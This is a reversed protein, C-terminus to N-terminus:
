ESIPIYLLVQKNLAKVKNNVIITRDLQIEFGKVKEQGSYTLKKSRNQFHRPPALANIWFLSGLNRNYNRFYTQIFIVYTVNSEGDFKLKGREKELQIFDEQTEVKEGELLLTYDTVYGHASVEISHFPNFHAIRDVQFHKDYPAMFNRDLTYRKGSEGIVEYSYVYNTKAGFWALQHPKFYFGSFLMIVMSGYFTTKTFLREELAVPMKWFLLLVVIEFLMWKWFFVGTLAFISIHIGFFGMIIFRSWKAKFLFLIAVLELCFTVISLLTGYQEAFNIVGQSLNWGRYNALALSYHLNGNTFWEYGHPAVFIKSIAPIVYSAGLLCVMLFVYLHAPWKRYLRVVIFVYFLMLQDILMKKDVNTIDSIPVYFQARVLLTIALYPAIFAPHKWILVTLAILLVRDFYHAQDFYYNYNYTSHDWTLVAAIVVVIWRIWQYSHLQKWELKRYHKFVPFCIALLGIVFFPNALAGITISFSEFPVINIWDAASGIKSVIKQYGSIFGSHFCALLLWHVVVYLFLITVVPLAKRLLPQKIYRSLM